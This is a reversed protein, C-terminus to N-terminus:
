ILLTMNNFINNKAFPNQSSFFGPTEYQLYLLFVPICFTNNERKEYLLKTDITNLYYNKERKM